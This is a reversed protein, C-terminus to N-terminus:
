ERLCWFGCVLVTGHHTCLSSAPPAFKSLFFSWNPRSTDLRVTNISCLLVYVHVIVCPHVQFFAIFIATHFSRPAVHCAKRAGFDISVSVRHNPQASCCHWKSVM